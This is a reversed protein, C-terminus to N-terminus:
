FILKFQKFLSTFGKFYAKKKPFLGRKHDLKATHQMGQYGHKSFEYQGDSFGEIQPRKKFKM